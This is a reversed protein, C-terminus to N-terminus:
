SRCNCSCSCKKCTHCRNKNDCGKCKDCCGDCKHHQDEGDCCICFTKQGSLNFTANTAQSLNLVSVSELDALQIVRQLRKRITPLPDITLILPTNCKRRKITVQIPQTIASLELLTKNHNCTFDEYVTQTSGPTLGTSFTPIVHVGIFCEGKQNHNSSSSSNPGCSHCNKNNINEIGCCICFTKGMSVALAGEGTGVNSVVLREFNEVTFSKFTEPLLVTSIPRDCCRTYIKIELPQPFDESVQSPDVSALVLLTKNHNCTVDEIVTLDAVGSGVIFTGNYSHTDTFCKQPPTPGLPEPYHIPSPPCDTVQPVENCLFRQHRSSM